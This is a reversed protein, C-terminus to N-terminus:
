IYIHSQIYIINICYIDSQIYNEKWIKICGSNRQIFYQHDYIFRKSPEMHKLILNESIVFILMIISCLHYFNSLLVIESSIYTTTPFKSTQFPSRTRVSSGRDLNGDTIPATMSSCSKAVSRFFYEAWHVVKSLSDYVLIVTIIISTSFGNFQSELIM